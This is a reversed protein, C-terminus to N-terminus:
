CSLHASSTHETSTQPTPASASITLFDRQTTARINDGTLLTHVANYLSPNADPNVPNRRDISVSNILGQKGTLKTTQMFAMVVSPLIFFDSLDPASFPDSYHMLVINLGFAVATPIVANKNALELKDSDNPTLMAQPITITQRQPAAQQSFLRSQRAARKTAIGALRQLRM